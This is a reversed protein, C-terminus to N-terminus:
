IEYHLMYFLLDVTEDIAITCNVVIATMCETKCSLLNWRHAKLRCVCHCNGVLFSLTSNKWMFENMWTYNKNRENKHENLIPACKSLQMWCPAVVVRHLSLNHPFARHWNALAMSVCEDCDDVCDFDDSHVNVACCELQRNTLKDLDPFTM